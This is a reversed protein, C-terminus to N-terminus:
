VIRRYVPMNTQVEPFSRLTPDHAQHPSAVYVFRGMVSGPLLKISKKM